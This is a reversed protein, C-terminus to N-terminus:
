FLMPAHCGCPCTYKIRFANDGCVLVRGEFQGGVRYACKNHKGKACEVTPIIHCECACFPHFSYHKGTEPCKQHEGFMTCYGTSGICVDPRDTYSARITM